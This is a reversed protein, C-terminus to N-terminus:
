SGSRSYKCSFRMRTVLRPMCCFTLPRAKVKCPDTSSFRRWLTEGTQGTRPM